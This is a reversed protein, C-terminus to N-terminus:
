CYGGCWEVSPVSSDAFVMVPAPAATAPGSEEVQRLLAALLGQELKDRYPTLSDPLKPYLVLITLAAQNRAALELAQRVAQSEKKEAHSVLLINRFHQM